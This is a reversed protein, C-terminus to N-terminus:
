SPQPRFRNWAYVIAAVALVLAVGAAFGLGLAESVYPVALALGGAVVNLLTPRQLAPPRGTLWSMLLVLGLGILAGYIFSELRV